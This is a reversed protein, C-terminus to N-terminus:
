NNVGGAWDNSAFHFGHADLFQRNRCNRGFVIKITKELGIEQCQLCWLHMAVCHSCWQCPLNMRSPLLSHRIAVNAGRWASVTPKELKHTAKVNTNTKYNNSRFKSCLTQHIQVYFLQLPSANGWHINERSILDIIAAM